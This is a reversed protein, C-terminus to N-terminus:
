LLADAASQRVQSEEVHGENLKELGNGESGGGARGTPNEEEWEWKPLTGLGEGPEVTEGGARRASRLGSDRM